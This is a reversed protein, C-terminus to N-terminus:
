CKPAYESVIAKLNKIHTNNKPIFSGGYIDKYESVRSKM